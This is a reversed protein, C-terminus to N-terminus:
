EAVMAPGRKIGVPQSLLALCAGVSLNSETPEIPRDVPLADSGLAGRRLSLLSTLHASECAVRRSMTGPLWDDVDVACCSVHGRHSCREADGTAGFRKGRRKRAGAFLLHILCHM